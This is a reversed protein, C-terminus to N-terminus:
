NSIAEDRYKKELRDCVPNFDKTKGEKIQELGAMVLERVEQKQEDLARQYDEKLAVAMFDTREKKDANGKSFFKSKYRLIIGQVFSIQLLEKSRKSLHVSFRTCCGM